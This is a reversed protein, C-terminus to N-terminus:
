KAPQMLVSGGPEDLEGLPALMHKNVHRYLVLVLGLGVIEAIPFAWWVYALGFFNALLYAAPLIAVVQRAISMFLSYVGKGLAQFLTSLSIGLAAGPFSLSIIRLAPVGIRLMDESARFMLLMERAFLQFALTGALMVGMAITLLMRLTRRMRQLNRAGYNYALISMGGGSLAFVPFFIFSNLKFYVGFVSVAVPTFFILIKNMGLTMVTGISQMVISPLGVKYIDKITQWHPRFGRVVVKVEHKVFFVLFISLLMAVWEGVVTAIAAGAVGLAPFGFYGFILIPDLIINLIAGSLQMFMPLVTNGTAQILRECTIQVFVGVCFTMCIFLYDGSMSLLLPDSTFLTFFNRAFCLGLVTFVLASMLALFLGNVAAMNAEAFRKEGLRRSILANIGVGTGVGVSIMLMQIPFALSVAALATGNVQAVFISDVINYCAQILMSVVIPAAMSVLLKGEPMVGMKNQKRIQEGM